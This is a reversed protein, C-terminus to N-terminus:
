YLQLSAGFYRDLKNVLELISLFVYRIGHTKETKAEKEKENTEEKKKKNKVEKKRKKGRRKQKRKEKQKERRKKEKNKEKPLHENFIHLVACEYLDHNNNHGM